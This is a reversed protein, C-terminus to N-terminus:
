SQNTTLMVSASTSHSQLKCMHVASDSGILAYVPGTLGVLCSLGVSPWGSAVSFNVWVDASPTRPAFVRLHVTLEPVKWRDNSARCVLATDPNCFLRWRPSYACSGRCTTAEERALHQLRGSDLSDRDHATSCAMASPHLREQQPSDPRTSTLGSHFVTILESELFESTSVFMGIIYSLAKQLKKPAFESVWHYQGGSTPAMSAMEAMSVIAAGMGFLSVVYMWIMAPLGGNPISYSTANLMAEWSIMLVASFGFTPIFSFNRRLEQTKGMRHMNSRDEETGAKRHDLEYTEGDPPTLVPNAGM